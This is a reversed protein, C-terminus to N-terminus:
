DWSTVRPWGRRRDASRSEGPKRLLRFTPPFSTPSSSPIKPAGLKGSKPLGPLRGSPVGCRSDWTECVPRSRPCVSTLPFFNAHFRHVVNGSGDQKAQQASVLPRDRREQRRSTSVYGGARVVRHFSHITIADEPAAQHRGCSHKAALGERSTPVIGHQFGSSRFGRDRIGHNLFASM